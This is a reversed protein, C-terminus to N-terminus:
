QQRTQAGERGRRPRRASAESASPRLLVTFKGCAAPLASPDIARYGGQLAIEMHQTDTASLAPPNGGRRYCLVGPASTALMQRYAKAGIAGRLSVWTGDAYYAALDSGRGCILQRPGLERRVWRGLEMPGSLSRGLLGTAAQGIGRGTALLGLAGYPLLLLVATLLHRSSVVGFSSLYIWAGASVLLSMAALPRQSPKLLARWSYTLGVALLLGHVPGFANSLKELFIRVRVSLKLGPQALEAPV